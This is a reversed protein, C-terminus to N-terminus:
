EGWVAQADAAASDLQDVLSVLRDAANEVGSGELLRVLRDRRRHFKEPELYRTPQGCCCTSLGMGPEERRLVDLTRELLAPDMSMLACGPWFVARCRDVGMLPGSFSAAQHLRMGLGGSKNM